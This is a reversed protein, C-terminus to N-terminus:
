ELRKRRDAKPQLYIAFASLITQSLLGGVSALLWVPDATLYARAIGFLIGPVAAVAILFDITVGTPRRSARRLRDVYRRGWVRRDKRQRYQKRRRDWGTFVAERVTRGQEDTSPQDCRRRLLQRRDRGSRRPTKRQERHMWPAQSHSSM